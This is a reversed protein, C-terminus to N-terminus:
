RVTRSYAKEIVPRWLDILRSDEPGSIYAWEQGEYVELIALVTDSITVIFFYRAEWESTLERWVIDECLPELDEVALKLNTEEQVLERWAAQRPNEGPEVTGGFTGIRGPNDIDPRDDRKQGIIKGSDTVIVVGAYRHKVTHTAPPEEM